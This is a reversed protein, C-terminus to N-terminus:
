AIGHRSILQDVDKKYQPVWFQNRSELLSRVLVTSLPIIVGRSRRSASRNSCGKNSKTKGALACQEPM